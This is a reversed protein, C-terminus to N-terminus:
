SFLPMQFEGDCTIRFFFSFMKSWIERCLKKNKLKEHEALSFEIVKVFFKTTGKLGFVLITRFSIIKVVVVEEEISITGIILQVM